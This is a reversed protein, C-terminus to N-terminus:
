FESKTKNSVKDNTFIVSIMGGDTFGGYSCYETKGVYEDQSETCSTPERGGALATVEAKTQGNEIKQYFEDLSVKQEAPKAEEQEQPQTTDTQAPQQTNTNTTEDGGGAAAAIGGIVIVALIVTLIKHKKFWNM